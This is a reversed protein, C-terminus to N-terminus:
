EEETAKVYPDIVLKKVVYYCILPTVTGYFIASPVVEHSLHVPVMFHQMGRMVELNLVVGAMSNIMISVDVRSFKTIQKEVGYSLTAGFYGYQISSKIKIDNDNFKRAVTLSVFSSKVGLQFRGNVSLTDTEYLLGTAM